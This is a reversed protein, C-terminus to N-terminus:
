TGPPEGKIVASPICGTRALSLLTLLIWSTMTFSGRFREAVEDWREKVREAVLRWAGPNEQFRAEGIAFDITAQQRAPDQSAGQAKLGANVHAPDTSTQAFTKMFDYEAKGGERVGVRCTIQLIDGPIKSMDGTEIFHAFRTKLEGVVWADGAEAAQTIAETRLRKDAPSDKPAAEFGLRKVIRVFLDKRFSNILGLAHGHDYWVSAVDALGSSIVTWVYLEKECAGLASVLELASSISSYGAKALAFADAVLGIRDALNFPSNPATAQQGIKVLRDASYQVVYFGDTDANLKFPKTCGLSMPAEREELVFDRMVVRSDDAAVTVLSIPIARTAYSCITENHEPAAPGSELFRDQRLTLKDEHETVTIMPYGVKNVWNEMLNPVDLGAMFATTSQMSRWLDTTVVTKYAHKKLHMSVGKMFSEQIVSEADPCEVEIPHSSLKADIARGSLYPASLFKAESQWEPWLRDGSSEDTRHQSHDSSVLLGVERHVTNASSVVESPTWKGQVVLEGMLTAFGENLYLYDWWEMTTINGFWMHAIEHGIMGAVIQQQKVDNSKPDYLVTGPRVTILGLIVDLKPLPYELDFMEEYAPVLRATMDLALQTQEPNAGTASLTYFRVPKTKGSLPSTYESKTYEFPGNAYAVIYTSMPPSVEFHTIKWRAPESMSAIKEELWTGEEATQGACLMETKIPMNSVNTTNTRSSHSQMSLKATKAALRNIFGMPLEAIPAGFTISLRSATAIIKPFAFTTRQLKADYECSLPRQPAENGESHLWAEAIELGLTNLVILSTPNNVKLDIYVIGDFELTDLDTLIHLDYHIPVVDAPLRVRDQAM